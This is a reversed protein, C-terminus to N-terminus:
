EGQRIHEDIRNVLALIKERSDAGPLNNLSDQTMPWWLAQPIATLEGYRRIQPVFVAGGEPVATRYVMAIGIVAGLKYLAGHQPSIQRALQASVCQPDAEIYVEFEHLATAFHEIEPLKPAQVGLAEALPQREEMLKALQTDEAIGASAVAAAFGLKFGLKWSLYRAQQLVAQDAGVGTEAPSSSSSIDACTSAADPRSTKPMALENPIWGAKFVRAVIEPLGVQLLLFAGAISWVVGLFLLGRGLRSESWSRHSSPSGAETTM